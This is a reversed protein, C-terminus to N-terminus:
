HSVFIKDCGGKGVGIACRMETMQNLIDLHVYKHSREAHCAFIHKVYATRVGMARRDLEIRLFGANSGLCKGFFPLLCKILTEFTEINFEVAAKASRVRGFIFPVRLFNIGLKDFRAM